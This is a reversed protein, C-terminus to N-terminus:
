SPSFTSLPLFPVPWANLHLHETENRAVRESTRKHDVPVIERGNRCWDTHEASGWGGAMPRRELVELQM